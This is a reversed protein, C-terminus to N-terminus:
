KHTSRSKRWFFSKWITFCGQSIYYLLLPRNIRLTCTTAGSNAILPLWITSSPSVTFRVQSTTAALGIVTAFHYEDPLYIVRFEQFHLLVLLLLGGGEKRKIWEPSRNSHTPMRRRGDHTTTFMEKELVVLGVKVLNPIKCKYPIRLSVNYIKHDGGSPLYNQPLISSQIRKKQVGLCPGSLSLVTYITIIVM